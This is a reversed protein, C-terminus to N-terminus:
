QPNGADIVRVKGLVVDLEDQISDPIVFNETDSIEGIREAIQELTGGKISSSTWGETVGLFVRAYRGALASFAQGNVACGRSALYLLMPTVSEATRRYELAKQTAVIKQADPALNPSERRIDSVAYPLIANVKIGDDRGELALARSLTLLAGKSAIYSTIGQMGFVAGSSTMVVRGYGAKRMVRWAPQTARFAGLLNVNLVREIQDASIAEFTTGDVIGANNVLIHLAGFNSLAAETLLEGGEATSIDANCAVAQGGKEVIERALTEAWSGAPDSIGGIDNVVVSAGRQALGLAYARGLGRGAGTVVAVQDKFCVAQTSAPM